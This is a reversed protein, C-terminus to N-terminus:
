LQQPRPAASGYQNRCRRVWISKSHFAAIAIAISIQSAMGSEHVSHLAISHLRLKPVFVSIARSRSAENDEANSDNNQSTHLVTAAVVGKGRRRHRKHWPTAHMCHTIESACEPALSGCGDSFTILLNVFCDHARHDNMRYGLRTMPKM